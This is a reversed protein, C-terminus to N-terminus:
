VNTFIELLEKTSAAAQIGRSAPGAIRGFRAALSRLKNVTDTDDNVNWVQNNVCVEGAFQKLGIEFARVGIFDYDVIARQMSKIQTLTFEKLLEDQISDVSKRFGELEGFLEWREEEDILTEDELFHSITSLLNLDGEGLYQGIASWKNRLNLPYIVRRVNGIATQYKELPVDSEQIQHEAKDLEQALLEQRHMIEFVSETDNRAQINFAENWVVSAQVDGQKKGKEILTSVNETVRSLPNFKTGM